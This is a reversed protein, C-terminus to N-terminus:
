EMWGRVVEYPYGKFEPMEMILRNAFCQKMARNDRTRDVCEDTIDTLTYKYRSIITDAQGSRHLGLALTPSMRVDPYLARYYTMALIDPPTNRPDDICAFVERKLRGQAQRLEPVKDKDIADHYGKIALVTDFCYRHVKDSSVESLPASKLHQDYSSIADLLEDSMSDDVVIGSVYDRNLNEHRIWEEGLWSEAPTMGEIAVEDFAASIDETTSKELAARWEEVTLGEKIILEVLDVEESVPTEAVSQSTETDTEAGYIGILVLLGIFAGVGILTWQWWRLGSKRADASHTSEYYAKWEASRQEDTLSNWREIDNTPNEIDSHTSEYYAKWEASRQEDTLSNWREIDNTPNEM